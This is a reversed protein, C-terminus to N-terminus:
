LKLLRLRLSAILGLGRRLVIAVLMRDLLRLLFNANLLGGWRDM